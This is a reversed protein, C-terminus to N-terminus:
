CCQGYQQIYDILPGKPLVVILEFDKKSLERLTTIFMKQAGGIESSGIALLIKRKKRFLSNM